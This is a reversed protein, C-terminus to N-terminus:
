ILILEFKLQNAPYFRNISQNQLFHKLITCKKSVDPHKILILYGVINRVRINRFSVNQHTYFLM